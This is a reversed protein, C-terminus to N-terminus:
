HEQLMVDLCTISWGTTVLREQHTWVVFCFESHSFAALQRPIVPSLAEDSKNALNREAVIDDVGAIYSVYLNAVAKVLHEVKPADVLAVKDMVFSGMNM